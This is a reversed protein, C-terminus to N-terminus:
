LQREGSHPTNLFLNSVVGKRILRIPTKRYLLFLTDQDLPTYDQKM